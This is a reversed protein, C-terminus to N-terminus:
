LLLWLYTGYAAILIVGDLRSLAKRFVMLGFLLLATGLMWWVDSALMGPSVELPLLLGAIGLIGLLNFINSGILNAIAIDSEKRLAAVVSTALEPMSTGAAVITLGIVRESWGALQALRVAGDVLVKGGAVLLGIGAVTAAIALVVEGGTRKIARREAAGTLHAQEAATAETRAIRISYATFAIMSLLFTGAELRDIVGDRAFVITVVTALCMVPWELKVVNGRIPLPAMLAAAGMIFSINFINSGVVNGVSLDPQHELSAIVSVVLEPLSTGMAVITLGIVAPTLGAVKAISTAGRVLFDGGVTLLALGLVVLGVAGPLTV